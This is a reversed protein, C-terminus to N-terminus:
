PGYDQVICWSDFAIQRETLAEILTEGFVERRRKKSRVHELVKFRAVSCAWAGFNTDRQFEGFTQWLLVSTEQFLDYAEDPNHVLSLIYGFIRGYASQLLDAFEEERSLEPM